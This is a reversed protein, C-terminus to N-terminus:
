PITPMSSPSCAPLTRSRKGKLGRPYGGGDWHERHSLMEDSIKALDPFAKAIRFGVEPHRQVTEWEEPTLRGPKNAIDVPLAAASIDHMEVLLLLANMQEDALELTKGFRRALEYGREIHAPLGRMRERARSLFPSIVNEQNMRSEATKNRYMEKEARRISRIFIRIMTSRSPREWPSVPSSRRAETNSRSRACARASKTQRRSTPGPCSSRSSTAAGGPSLIARGAPKGSPGAIAKLLRDGEDHGFVDNALKLNNVDGMIISIPLERETDVRRLEEEFFARNFLGTVKDHFSIYRIQEEARKRETIDRAIVLVSRWWGRDQAFEPILQASFYRKGFFGSMDFEVSRERGNEIVGQVASHWFDVMQPAM